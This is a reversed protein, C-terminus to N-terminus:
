YVGVPRAMAFNVNSKFRAGIKWAYASPQGSDNVKLLLTGIGIGSANAHRTDQSHGSPASDAVRVSYANDEAVPKNMVVMVHGGIENGVSNKTRFVMIDGPQLQDVDDVRNWYHSTDELNSFFDYYHQSTPKETGTMHVLNSYARPYVAQLINDVYDSCDLVYIGRSTDFRRGGWKYASYRLTGVTQKVFSVLRQEFSNVFGMRAFLGTPAQEVPPVTVSPEADSVINPAYHRQGPGVKHKRKLRHNQAHRSTQKHTVHSSSRVRHQQATHNRVSSVHRSTHQTAHTTNATAVVPLWMLLCAILILKKMM